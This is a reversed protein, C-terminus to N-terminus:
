ETKPTRKRPPKSAKAQEKAVEEETLVVLRDVKTQKVGEYESHERVTAKVWYSEGPTLNSGSSTRRWVVANGESTVLKHLYSDGYFGGTLPIIRACQVQFIRREGVQGIYVSNGVQQFELKKLVQREVERLYYQILSAAIGALRLDLSEQLTAVYLNHEYDNRDEKAALEVRAYDLAKSATERDAETIPNADVWAAWKSYAETFAKPPQLYELAIDATATVGFQDRAQSRSIWGKKRIWLAVASLYHEMSHRYGRGGGGYIDWGGENDECVEYIRLLLELGATVAHPDQNGLFDKICSRGVQKWIGDEHRVIYTDKRTPIAKQCHDCNESTTTRVWKPLQGEFGPATRLLNVTHGKDDKLHQLTAAFDWGALRPTSGTVTVQRFRVWVLEEAKKAEQISATDDPDLRAMGNRSHRFPLDKAELWVTYSIEVTGLKAARKALKDLTAKLQPLNDEHILYTKTISANVTPSDM